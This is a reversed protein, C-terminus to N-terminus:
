PNPEPVIAYALVDGFVRAHDRGILDYELTPNLGHFVYTGDDASFTSGICRCGLRVFLDVRRAGPAGGVTVLGDPAEGAIYGAGGFNARVNRVFPIVAAM